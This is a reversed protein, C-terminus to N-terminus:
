KSTCASFKENNLAAWLDNNTLLEEEVYVPLAISKDSLRIRYNKRAKSQIVFM